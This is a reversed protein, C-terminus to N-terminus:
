TEWCTSGPEDLYMRHWLELAIIATLKRSLRKVGRPNGQLHDELLQPIASANWYDRSLTRSDLLISEAWGRLDRKLWGGYDVYFRSTVSPILGMSVKHLRRRWRTLLKRRNEHRVMQEHTANLPLGYTTTAPVRALEPAGRLVVRRYLSNEGWRLSPPITQAFDVLDNDFFLPRFVLNDPFLGALRNYLRRHSQRIAWYDVQHTVHRSPCREFDRHFRAQALEKMERYYDPKVLARLEEDTTFSREDYYRDVSFGDAWPEGRPDEHFGGLIWEGTSGTILANVHSAIEAYVGIGHFRDCNILDEMRSIGARAFTALYDPVIELAYHPMGAVRAAERAYRVDDCEPIGFTFAAANDKRLVSLVVRSDLGGSLLLGAKLEGAQQREAAQRLLGILEDLYDDASIETEQEQLSLDWYEGRRVRGGECTVLSAPSLEGIGEFLTDNGQPVGLCLFDALAALNVRRPFMTDALIGKPASAWVYRGNSQATYLPCLSYRDNAIVLRRQRSDWVALAFSGNLEQVFANGRDEYLHVVFEAHSDGSFRHGAQEMSRRLEQHGFLEGHFFVCITRDENWAPQPARNVLLPRCRGIGFGPGGYWEVPGERDSRRLAGCMSPVLAGIDKRRDAPDYVVVIGPM